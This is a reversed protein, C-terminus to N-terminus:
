HGDLYDDVLAELFRMIVAKEDIQPAEPAPGAAPAPPEEIPAALAHWAALDGYFVNLDLNGGYGPLRGTSAYQWIAVTWGPVSPPNGPVRFGEVTASSPYAALWLAYGAAKVRSWDHANATSANMYILPKRGTAKEVRELWELAWATNEQHEAEWDLAMLDGPALLPLVVKLFSEAEAQASNEPGVPRAFHYFLAPVGSARTSALNSSLAPDSWGVGETAKIGVFGAGLTRVNIGAQHNSIDVGNLTPYEPAPEPAPPEPIPTVVPTPAPTLNPLGDTSVPDFFLISAYGISDKYWLKSRSGDAGVVEDGEVFGEWVEKSGAPIERVVPAGLRPEKRQNVVSAGAKRENPALAETRPTLDPLGDVTTPDFFLVSAYGQVDKLWLDSRNGGGADVMEGRVFGEWVERTKPEIVRVIPAGIKPEARQNVQADGVMRENAKLPKNLDDWYHDCVSSPNSRGYTNSYLWYGPLLVEFHLHPGTTWLGTNGTYGIIDGKRVRQGKDVVTQNLHGFIFTPEADGCDLVAVLGGGKTLLWPNDSGNMTQPFGEYAIVGDGPARVPTGVPCPYDEGTHGGAPNVGGPNSGFPQGKTISKSLPFMYGM